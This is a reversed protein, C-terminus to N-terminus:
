SNRREGRTRKGQRKEMFVEKCGTACFYITHGNITLAAAATKPSVRMGCVPDIAVPVFDKMRLRLEETLTADGQNQDILMERILDSARMLNTHALKYHITKGHRRSRVLGHERLVGLHQSLNAQPLGLMNQMDSVSLEKDRLLHIIEVRKQNALAKYLKEHLQFVEQYM